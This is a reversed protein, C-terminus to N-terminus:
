AAADIAPGLRGELMGEWGQKMGDYAFRQRPDDLDFGSHELILRTGEGAAELTWTVVTDLPANKWSYSLRREPELTLVECDVLGWGTTEFTFRCGVEARFTNPMLWRAMTASDTLARWVRAPAHPLLQETRITAPM